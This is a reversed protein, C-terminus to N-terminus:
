MEQEEWRQSCPGGKLWWGKYKKARHSERVVLSQNGVQVM